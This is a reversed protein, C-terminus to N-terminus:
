NQNLRMYFYYVGTEWGLTITVINISPMIACKNFKLRLLSKSSPPSLSVRCNKIKSKKKSKYSQLYCLGGKLVVTPTKSPSPPSKNLDESKKKTPSKSTKSTSPLALSEELTKPRLREKITRCYKVKVHRSAILNLNYFFEDKQYNQM